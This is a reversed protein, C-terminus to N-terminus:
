LDRNVVMNEGTSDQLAAADDLYPWRTRLRDVLSLDLDIRYTGSAAGAEFCLDGYPAAAASHGQVNRADPYTTGTNTSFVVYATNEAARVSILRHWLNVRNLPINSPNLIVQAGRQALSRALEPYFMDVCILIGVPVGAIHYLPVRNGGTMYKREGVPASPFVKETEGLLAGDPGIVHCIDKLGGSNNQIFLGGSVLTYRGRAAATSWTDLLGQLDSPSVPAPGNWAEPLLVIDTDTIDDLVANMRRMNDPPDERVRHHQVLVIRLTKKATDTDPTTSM